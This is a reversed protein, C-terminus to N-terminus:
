SGHPWKLRWAPVPKVAASLINRAMFVFAALTLLICVIELISWVLRAPGRPPRIGGVLVVAAGVLGGGIHAANNVGPILFGMVLVIVVWRVLGGVMARSAPDNRVLGYAILGGVVGFIAGSAGLTPAGRLTPLSFLFSGVGAMFYLVVFKSRGLVAEALPGLQALVMMNFGIHVIGAHLYYAAVLRWYQHERFVHLASVVGMRHMVDESMGLMGFIGQGPALAQKGTLVLGVVYILVNLGIITRVASIKGERPGLSRLVKGILGRDLFSFRYGCGSCVKENRDMLLRCRPCMKYPHRFGRLRNSANRQRAEFGRKWQQFKWYWRSTAVPKNRERTHIISCETVSAPPSSKESFRIM